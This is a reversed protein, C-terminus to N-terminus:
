DNEDSHTSYTWTVIRHLQKETTLAAIASEAITDVLLKVWRILFVGPIPLCVCYPFWNWTNKGWENKTFSVDAFLMGFSILPSLILAGMVIRYYIRNMKLLKQPSSKSVLNRWQDTKDPPSTDIEVM